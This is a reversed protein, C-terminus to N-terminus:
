GLDKFCASKFKDVDFRPNEHSFAVALAEVLYKFTKNLVGAIAEFHKKTMKNGKTLQPAGSLGSNNNNVVL